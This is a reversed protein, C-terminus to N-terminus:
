RGRINEYDNIYTSPPGFTIITPLSDRYHNGSFCSPEARAIDSHRVEIINSDGVKMIDSHSVKIINSDGVRAVGSHSVRNAASKFKRNQQGRTAM